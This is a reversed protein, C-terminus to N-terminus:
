ERRRDEREIEQQKERAFAESGGPVFAYKGYGSLTRIGRGGKQRRKEDPHEFVKLELLADPPIEHRHSFVEDVTGRYIKSPQATAHAV